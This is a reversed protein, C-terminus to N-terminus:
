TCPTAGTVSRELRATGSPTMDVSLAGGGFAGFIESMLPFDWTFSAKVRVGDGPEGYVADGDLDVYCVEVDGADIIDQAQDATRQQIDIENTHVAAYRAGERVAHQLALRRDIAIGFDVVSLVLVLIIPAIFAFELLTQGRRGARLWGIRGPARLAEALTRAITRPLQKVRM